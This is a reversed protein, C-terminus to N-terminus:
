DRRKLGHCSLKQFRVEAPIFSLAPLFFVITCTWLWGLCSVEQTPLARPVALVGAVVGAPHAWSKQSGAGSDQREAKSLM